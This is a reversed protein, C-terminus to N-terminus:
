LTLAIKKSLFVNMCHDSCFYVGPAEPHSVANQQDLILMRCIPDVFLKNSKEVTVEFLTEQETMNKLSYKGKSLFQQEKGEPLSDIFHQSCWISGASAASAIRSAFNIATGFYSKNRQLLTGYHLGGHLLLFNEEKYATQLLMMATALLNDPDPSLVMIEDGVREHLRSEGVLCDNVLDTFREVVDAAAEAGHTETLATYGSLDAILIALKTEM